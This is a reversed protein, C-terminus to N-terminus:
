KEKQYIGALAPFKTTRDRVERWTEADSLDNTYTTVDMGHPLYDMRRAEQKFHQRFAQRAGEEDESFLIAFRGGGLPSSYLRIKSMGLTNEDRERKLQNWDIKNWDIVSEPEDARWKGQRIGLMIAHALLPEDYKTADQMFEMVTM